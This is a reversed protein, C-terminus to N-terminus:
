KWCLLINGADGLAAAASGILMAQQTRTHVLYTQCWWLAVVECFRLHKATWCVHNGNLVTLVYINLSADTYSTTPQVLKLPYDSQSHSQTTYTHACHIPRGWWLGAATMGLQPGGGALGAASCKWAAGAPHPEFRRLGHRAPLLQRLCCPSDAASLMAGVCLVAAQM